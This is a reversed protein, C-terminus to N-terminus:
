GVILKHEDETLRFLHKIILLNKDSNEPKPLELMSKSRFLYNKHKKIEWGKKSIQISNWLKDGIDIEIFDESFAIRNYVEDEGLKWLNVAELNDIIEDLVSRKLPLQFKTLYM